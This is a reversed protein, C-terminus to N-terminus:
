QTRIGPGLEAFEPAGATEAAEAPTTRLPEDRFDAKSVLVILIAAWSLLLTVRM